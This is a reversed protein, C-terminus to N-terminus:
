EGEAWQESSKCSSNPLRRLRIVRDAAGRLENATEGCGDLSISRVTLELGDQFPKIGFRGADCELKCEFVGDDAFCGGLSLFRANPQRASIAAHFDYRERPKGRELQSPFFDLRFSTVRQRPQTKLHAADYDRAFCALANPIVRDLAADGRATSATLALSAGLFLAEAWRRRM